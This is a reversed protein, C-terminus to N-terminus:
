YGILGYQNEKQIFAKLKLRGRHILIKVQNINEEMAEAIEQYSFGEVERLVMATRQKENLESMAKDLVTMQDDIVTQKAPDPTTSMIGFAADLETPVIKVKRKKDICLNRTIRLSWAVMNDVAELKDANQWLRIIADQVVDRASSEDKMFSLAMRYMPNQVEKVINEFEKLQM